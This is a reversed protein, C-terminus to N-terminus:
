ARRPPRREARRVQHVVHKRADRPTLPRESEGAPKPDRQQLVLLQEVLHQAGEDAGDERELPQARPLKLKTRGREPATTKMWFKM